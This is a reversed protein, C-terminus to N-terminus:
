FSILFGLKKRARTVVVAATLTPCHSHEALCTQQSIGLKDVSPQLVGFSFGWQRLCVATVLSEQPIGHSARPKSATYDISKSRSTTGCYVFAVILTCTTHHPQVAPTDTKRDAIAVVTVASVLTQLVSQTVNHVLLGPRLQKLLQM